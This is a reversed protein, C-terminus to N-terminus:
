KNINEFLQGAIAKFDKVRTNDSPTAGYKKVILLLFKRGNNMKIFSLDSFTNSFLAIGCKSLILDNTKSTSLEFGDIFRCYNSEYNYGLEKPKKSLINSLWIQNDVYMKNSHTKQFSDSLGVAALRMSSILSEATACNGIKNSIEFCAPKINAIKLKQYTIKDRNKVMHTPSNVLTGEDLMLRNIEMGKINLKKIGNNLDSFGIWLILRNTADNDSIVLMKIIDEKVIHWENSQLEKYKALLNLNETALKELTVLAVAVKITSAPNFFGTDFDDAIKNVNSDEYNAGHNYITKLKGGSLIEKFLIRTDKDFKHNNKFDFRTASKIQFPSRSSINLSCGAISVLTYLLLLFTM